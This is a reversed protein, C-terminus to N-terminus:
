MEGPEHISQTFSGGGEGGGREEWVGRGQANYQANHAQPWVIGKEGIGRKSGFKVFLNHNKPPLHLSNLKCTVEGWLPYIVSLEESVNEKLRSAGNCQNVRSQKASLLLITYGVPMVTQIALLLWINAFERLTPLAFELCQKRQQHLFIYILFRWCERLMPNAKREVGRNWWWKMMWGTNNIKHEDIHFCNNWWKMGTANIVM